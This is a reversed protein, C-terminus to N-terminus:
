IQKFCKRMMKRESSEVMEPMDNIYIVFLIPGLVSGQPIGSTVHYGKSETGNVIVKQIRNSLFSEVWKTVKESIKYRHMKHLLRGHPVKDFAKMFDMYVSDIKGGKDLIKTWEDMLKLLQLTTSRGSIFVFQKNSFLKNASMHKVIIERVLKEMTKCIVSTLSVPRYNGPEAKDGKKFLATINGEKWLQPVLGQCM